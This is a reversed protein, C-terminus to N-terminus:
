PVKVAVASTEVAATLITLLRSYRSEADRLRKAYAAESLGQPKWRGDFLTQVKGKEYLVDTGDGGSRLGDCGADMLFFRTAQASPQHLAAYVDRYNRQALQQQLESTAPYEAAVLLLQVDPILLAAVFRNPSEPDQAAIADLHRATMLAALKGAQASSSVTDQALASAAACVFVLAALRVLHPRGIRNSM